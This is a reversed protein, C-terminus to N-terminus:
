TRVDNRLNVGAGRDLLAEVTDLRGGDSAGWLPTRKGQLIIVTM